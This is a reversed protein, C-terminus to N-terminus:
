FARSIRATMSWGSGNPDLAGPDDDLARTFEFRVGDDGTGLALGVARKWKPGSDTSVGLALDRFGTFPDSRDHAFWAAGADFFVGLGLGDIPTDNSWHRDADVWYQTNILVSRDGAFSKFGYGRVSGFGGLRYVYQRPLDGKATAGRLRLDLRTGPGMPQYRRLDLLYRKFRFDGGLVGGSREAFANIFWGRDPSGPHSRTDLQVDARVSVVDGEDVEPNDRFAASSWGNSFLAWDTAADM